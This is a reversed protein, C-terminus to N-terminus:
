DENELAIHNDVVVVFLVCCKKKCKIQQLNKAEEESDSDDDDDDSNVSIINRRSDCLRRVFDKLVDLKSLVVACISIKVLLKSIDVIIQQFSKHSKRHVLLNEFAKKSPQRKEVESPHADLMYM